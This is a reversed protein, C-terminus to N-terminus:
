NRLRCEMSRISMLFVKSLTVKDAVEAFTANSSFSVDQGKSIKLTIQLDIQKYNDTCSDQKSSTKFGLNCHCKYSGRSNVCTSHAPCISGNASACEDVDRNCEPGTWGADCTCSGNVPNCVSTHTMDCLCTNTCGKGFRGQPCTSCNEGYTWKMCDACTANDNQLFHGVECKCNYGGVTNICEQSCTHRGTECENLDTCNTGNYGNPCVCVVEENSVSCTSNGSCRAFQNATCVKEAECKGSAINKTYGEKCVCSASGPTNVCLTNPEYCVVQNEKCEDVDAECSIGILGPNCVCGVTSNCVGHICSCTLSCEKGYHYKDCDTCIRKNNQLKMGVPCECVYSGVTNSCTAQESCKNEEGCENIDTCTQNDSALNFGKPCQCSPVMDQVVCYGTCTLNRFEKCYDKVKSCSERDDNLRYGFYCYCNYYGPHNECMQECDALELHCEDIYGCTYSGEANLCTQTCENLRPDSCENIDRCFGSADEQYGQMCDCSYSGMNNSCSKRTDGCVRPNEKCEDVDDDCSSRKCSVKDVLQYGAICSCQFSGITNMCDQECIHQSCEDVDQCRLSTENLWLGADCFCLTNNGVDLTCGSTRSCDLTSAACPDSDDICTHENSPDVRYGEKCGCSYSGETNICLQDCPRSSCEDNDICDNTNPVSAYGAPCPYCSYTNNQPVNTCNRGLTCPSGACWDLTKDCDAGTYGANCVCSSYKFYANERPDQRVTTSCHGNGHCGTCLQVTVTHQQSQKGDANVAVFEVNVSGCIKEAKIITEKDFTDLFRPVYSANHYDSHSKGDEYIFVSSSDNVSWTQGFRFIELDSANFHLLSGNPYVFDNYPDGDFNGLLGKTVNNFTKPVITDLSLMRAEKRIELTIGTELFSVRLVGDVGYISMTPSNFAFRDNGFDKLTKTLDIENGYLILDDKATNLEIHLSSNTHDRAAFATFITADSINGDAKKARETRAQLSFTVNSTQISLLVYEGHGNFTYNMGDLTRMHPDGWFSRTLISGPIDRQRHRCPRDMFPHTGKGLEM